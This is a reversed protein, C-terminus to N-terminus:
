APVRDAVYHLDMIPLNITVENTLFHGSKTSISSENGHECFGCM